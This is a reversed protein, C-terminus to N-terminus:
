STAAGILVVVPGRREYSERLAAEVHPLDAPSDLRYFPVDWAHLTPQIVRVRPSTHESVPKTVDRGFEGVFMLTPVQAEVAIARLTNLSAFFGTNQVLLMPRHGSIYLGANIGVAEDETAVPLLVPDGQEAIATILTRQLTDPVTIVHSVGLRRLEAAIVRGEVPHALPTAETQM